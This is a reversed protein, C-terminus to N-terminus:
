RMVQSSRLYLRRCRSYCRMDLRRRSGHPIKEGEQEQAAQVLATGSGYRWHDYSPFPPRDSELFILPSAAVEDDDEDDDDEEDKDKDDLLSLEEVANTKDKTANVWEKVPLCETVKEYEKLHIHGSLEKFLEDVADFVAQTDLEGSGPAFWGPMAKPEEKLINVNKTSIGGMPTVISSRKRPERPLRVQTKFVVSPLTMPKVPDLSQVVPEELEASDDKRKTSPKPNKPAALRDVVEALKPKLPPRSSPASKPRQDKKVAKRGFSTEVKKASKPRSVPGRGRPDPAALLTVTPWPNVIITSTAKWCPKDPGKAELQRAAIEFEKAEKLLVGSALELAFTHEASVRPASVIESRKKLLDEHKPRWM